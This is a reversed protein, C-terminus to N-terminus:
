AVRLAGGSHSLSPVKTYLKELYESRLVIVTMTGPPPPPAAFLSLPFSEVACAICRRDAFQLVEKGNEAADGYYYTMSKVM